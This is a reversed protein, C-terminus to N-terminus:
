KKVKQKNKETTIEEETLINKNKLVEKIAKIEELDPKNGKIMVM